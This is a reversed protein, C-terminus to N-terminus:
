LLGTLRRVTSCMDSILAEDALGLILVRMVEHDLGDAVEDDRLNGRPM